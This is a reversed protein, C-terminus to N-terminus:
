FVLTNQGPGSDPWKRHNNCTIIIMHSSLTGFSYWAYMEKILQGEERQFTRGCSVMGRMRVCELKVGLITKETVTVSTTCDCM